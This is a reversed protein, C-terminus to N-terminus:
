VSQKHGSGLPQCLGSSRSLRTDMVVDGSSRSEVISLTGIIDESGGIKRM